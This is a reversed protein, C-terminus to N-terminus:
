PSQAEQYGLLRLDEELLWGLAVGVRSYLPSAGKRLGTVLHGLCSGAHNGLFRGQVDTLISAEPLSGAVLADLTRQALLGLVRLESVREEGRLVAVAAFAENRHRCGPNACRMTVAPAEGSFLAAFETAAKAPDASLAAQLEPIARHPLRQAASLTLSRHLEALNAERPPMRLLEFLIQYLDTRAAHFVTLEDPHILRAPSHM